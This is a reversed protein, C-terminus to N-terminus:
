CSFLWFALIAKKGGEAKNYRKEIDQLPKTNNPVSYGNKRQLFPSGCVIKSM